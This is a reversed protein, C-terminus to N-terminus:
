YIPLKVSHNQSALVNSSAADGPKSIRSRKLIPSFDFFRETKKKEIVFGGKNSITWKACVGASIKNIRIKM